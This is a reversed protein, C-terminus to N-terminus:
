LWNSVCNVSVSNVSKKKSTKDISQHLFSEQSSICRSQTALKRVVPPNLMPEEPKARPYGLACHWIQSVEFVIAPKRSITILTPGTAWAGLCYEYINSNHSLGLRESSANKRRVASWSLPPTRRRNALANTSTRWELAICHPLHLIICEESSSLLNFVFIHTPMPPRLPLDQEATRLGQGWRV